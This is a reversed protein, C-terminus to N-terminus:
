GKYNLNIISKLAKSGEYVAVLNLKYGDTEYVTWTGNKLVIQLERYGEHGCRVENAVIVRTRKGTLFSKYTTVKM